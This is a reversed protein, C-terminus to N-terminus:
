NGTTYTQGLSGVAGMQGQLWSILGEIAAEGDKVFDYGVKDGKSRVSRYTRLSVACYCISLELRTHYSSVRISQLIVIRSVISYQGKLKTLTLLLEVLSNILLLGLYSDGASIPSRGFRKEKPRIVKLKFAICLGAQVRSQTFMIRGIATGALSRPLRTIIHM